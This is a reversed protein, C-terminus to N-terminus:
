AKVPSFAWAHPRATAMARAAYFSVAATAGGLLADITWHNGTSVVVWFMVAPYASWFIRAARSKVLQALALGIMIANACHMSPVAAYPNFLANIKVDQQSVGTFASVSDHFGWEPFFRPPAVPYLVYGILALVMAVMVMNRVFYYRDNHAVYIYVLASFCITTQANMYIWAALDIAPRFSETYQQVGPEFFLGTAREVNILDRANSFAIIAGNPSDIAGRTLRYTYYVAMFMAIQVFVDLIGNPALRRHASNLTGALQM